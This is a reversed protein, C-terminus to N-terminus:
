LCLVALKFYFISCLVNPPNQLDNVCVLPMFNYDKRGLIINGTRLFNLMHFGSFVIVNWDSFKLNEKRIIPIRASGSRYQYPVKPYLLYGSTVDPIWSHPSASLVTKIFGLDLYGPANALSLVSNRM